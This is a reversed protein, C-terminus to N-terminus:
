GANLMWFYNSHLALKQFGLALQGVQFRIYGALIGQGPFFCGRAAIQFLSLRIQLQLLGPILPELCLQFQDTNINLLQFGTPRDLLAHGEIGRYRTMNGFDMTM